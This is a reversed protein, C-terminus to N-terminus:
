VVSVRGASPIRKTPPTCRDSKQEQTQRARSCAPGDPGSASIAEAKRDTPTQLREYKGELEALEPDGHAGRVEIRHRGKIKAKAMDTSVTHDGDGAL